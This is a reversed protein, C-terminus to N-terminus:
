LSSDSDSVSSSHFIVRGSSMEEKAKEVEHREREKLISYYAWVVSILAMAILCLIFLM